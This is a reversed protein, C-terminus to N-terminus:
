CKKFQGRPKTRTGKKVRCQKKNHAELKRGECRQVWTNKMKVIVCKKSKSLKNINSLIRSQEASSFSTKRALCTGRKRGKKPGRRTCPARVGYGGVNIIKAKAM